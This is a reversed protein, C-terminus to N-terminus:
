IRRASQRGCRRLAALAGRPSGEPRSRIEVGSAADRGCPLAAVAAAVSPPSVVKRQVRPCLADGGALDHEKAPEEGTHGSASPPMSHTGSPLDKKVAMNSIFEPIV